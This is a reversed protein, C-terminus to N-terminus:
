YYLLLTYHLEERAPASTPCRGSAELGGNSKGESTLLGSAEGSM